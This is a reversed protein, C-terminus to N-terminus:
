RMISIFLSGIAGVFFILVILVLALVFMSAALKFMKEENFRDDFVMGIIMFIGSLLFLIVILCFIFDGM